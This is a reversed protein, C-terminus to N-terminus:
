GAIKGILKDGGGKCYKFHKFIWKKHITAIIKVDIRIEDSQMINWNASLIDRIATTKSLNKVSIKFMWEM